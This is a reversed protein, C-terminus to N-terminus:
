LSQSRIIQKLLFVLTIAHHLRVVLNSAGGDDILRDTQPRSVYTAIFNEIVDHTKLKEKM